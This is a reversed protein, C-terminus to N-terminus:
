HLNEQDAVNVNENIYLIEMKEKENYIISM